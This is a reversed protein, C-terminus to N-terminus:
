RERGRGERGRERSRALEARGGRTSGPSPPERHPSHLGPTPRGKLMLDTVDPPLRARLLADTIEREKRDREAAERERVEREAAEREQREREATRAAQIQRERVAADAADRAQHVRELYERVERLEAVSGALDGGPCEREDRRREEVTKPEPLRIRETLERMRLLRRRAQQQREDRDREQQERERLREAAERVKPLRQAARERRQDREQQRRELERLRQAADRVQQLREAARQRRRLSHEDILPLQRADKERERGLEFIRQAQNRSIVHNTVRGPFDRVLGEILERATKSVQEGEVSRIRLSEIVGRELLWRDKELQKEDKRGEIRGSKDEVAHVRGSKDVRAKDFRRDGYPTRYEKPQQVYHNERDRFYRDTGNEFIRGRANSDFDRRIRDYGDPM